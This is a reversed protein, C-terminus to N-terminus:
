YTDHSSRCQRLISRKTAITSPFYTLLRSSEGNVRSAMRELIDHWTTLDTDIAPM